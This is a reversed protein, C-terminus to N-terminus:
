ALLSTCTAHHDVKGINDFNYDPQTWTRPMLLGNNLFTGICDARGSAAPDNCSYMRSSFLRVAIIGFILFIMLAVCCM